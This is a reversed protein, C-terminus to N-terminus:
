RKISRYCNNRWISAFCNIKDGVQFDQITINERNIDLLETEESINVKLGQRLSKLINRRLKLPCPRPKSEEDPFYQCTFGLSPKTVIFTSLIGEEPNQKIEKIQLNNLQVLIAEDSNQAFSLNAIFLLTSIILTSLFKKM